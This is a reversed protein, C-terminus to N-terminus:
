EILASLRSGDGSAELPRMARWCLGRCIITVWVCRGARRSNVLVFRHRARRCFVALPPTPEANEHTHVLASSDVTRVCSYAADPAAYRGRPRTLPYLSVPPPRSIIYPEYNYLWFMSYTCIAASRPVGLPPRYWVVRPVQLKKQPTLLKQTGDRRGASFPVRTQAPPLPRSHPGTFVSARFSSVGGFFNCIGVGTQYRATPVPGPRCGSGDRAVRLSTGFTRRRNRAAQSGEGFCCNNAM